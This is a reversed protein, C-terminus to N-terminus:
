GAIVSRRMFFCPVVAYVCAKRVYGENIGSRRKKTVGDGM